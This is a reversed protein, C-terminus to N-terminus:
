SASASLSSCLAPQFLESLKQGLPVGVVFFDLVSLRFQGDRLGIQLRGPVLLNNVAQFVLFGGGHDFAAFQATEPRTTM